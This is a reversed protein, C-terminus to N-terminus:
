YYNGDKFKDKNTELLEGLRSWVKSADGEGYAISSRILNIARCVQYDRWVNEPEGLQWDMYYPYLDKDYKNEHYDQLM